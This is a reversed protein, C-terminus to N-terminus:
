ARKKSQIAHKPLIKKLDAFVSQVCVDQDFGIAIYGQPDVLLLSGSHQLLTPDANSLSAIVDIPLILPDLASIVLSANLFFAPLDQWKKVLEQHETSPGLVLLTWQDNLSERELYIAPSFVTGHSVVKPTWLNNQM